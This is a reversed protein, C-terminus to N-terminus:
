AKVIQIVYDDVWFFLMKVVNSIYEVSEPCSINFQFQGFTIEKFRMNM